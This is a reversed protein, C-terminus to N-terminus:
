FPRKLNNRSFRYDLRRYSEREPSRKLFLIDKGSLRMLLGIPVIMLYFIVALLIRTNLWGLKEGLFMWAAHIPELVRVFFLGLFALVAFVIWPWLPYQRELLFPLLLGFLLCVTGGLVLAFKRLESADPTTKTRDM